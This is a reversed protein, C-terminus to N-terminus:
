RLEKINVKLECRKVNGAIWRHSVDDLRNIVCSPANDLDRVREREEGKHGSM